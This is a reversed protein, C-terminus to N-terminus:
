INPGPALMQRLQRIDHHNDSHLEVSVNVNLLLQMVIWASFCVSLRPSERPRPERQKPLCGFLKSLLFLEPSDMVVDSRFFDITAKLKFDNSRQSYKKRDTIRLLCDAANDCMVVYVCLLEIIMVFMGVHQTLIGSRHLSTLMACYVDVATDHAQAVTLVPFGKEYPNYKRFAGSSGTTAKSKQVLSDSHDACVRV